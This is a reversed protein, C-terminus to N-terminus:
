LTSTAHCNTATKAAASRHVVQVAGTPAAGKQALATAPVVARAMAGTTSVVAKAKAMWVPKVPLARAAHPLLPTAPPAPLARAMVGPRVPAAQAAM